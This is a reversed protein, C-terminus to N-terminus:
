GGVSPRTESTNHQFLVTYMLFVVAFFFLLICSISLWSIGHLNFNFYFCSRTDTLLCLLSFAIMAWEDNSLFLLKFFMDSPEKLTEEVLVSAQTANFQFQIEDLGILLLMSCCLIFVLSGRTIYWVSKVFFFTILVASVGIITFLLLLANM